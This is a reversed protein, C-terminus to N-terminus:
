EYRLSEAPNIKSVRYIQYLMSLLAFMLTLLFTAFYPIPSFDVRYPFSQLWNKVLYYAVPWAILNSICILWLFERAFLHTITVFSAGMIKRIGVEKTRRSTIFAVLGYIGLCAIVVALLSLSFVVRALKDEEMYM